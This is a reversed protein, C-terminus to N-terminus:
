KKPKAAEALEECFADLGRPCSSKARSYVDQLDNKAAPSKLHTHVFEKFQPDKMCAAFDNVNKWDIALRLFADTFQESTGEVDCHRYEQVAKQLQAWTVVADLAKQARAADAKTCPKQAFVTGSFLLAALITVIRM